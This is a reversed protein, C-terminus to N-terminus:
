SVVDQVIQGTIMHFHPTIHLAIVSLVDVRANHAM